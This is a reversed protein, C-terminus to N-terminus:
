PLSGPAPRIHTLPTEDAWSARAGAKTRATDAMDVEGGRESLVRRFPRRAGLTVVKYQDGPTVGTLPWCTATRTAFRETAFEHEGPRDPGVRCGILQGGVRM